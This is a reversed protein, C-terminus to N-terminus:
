RPLRRIPHKKYRDRGYTLYPRSRDSTSTQLHRVGVSDDRYCRDRHISRSRDHVCGIEDAASALVFPTFPFPPPILAVAAVTPAGHRKLRKRVLQLRGASVFRNLGHEGIKGGVWYTLASGLVSGTAALLPYLWALETNRAAMFIVVADIGLPLFFVLTSDLIGLFLVGSASAFTGFVRAFL